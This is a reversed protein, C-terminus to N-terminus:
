QSVVAFITEPKLITLFNMEYYGKFKFVAAVTLLFSM